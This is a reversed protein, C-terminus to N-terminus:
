DSWRFEKNDAPSKATRATKPKRAHPAGAEVPLSLVPTQSSRIVREATAGLMVRELIGKSQLNLVLLDANADKAFSVISSHPVGAVVLVETQIDSAHTSTTTKLRELAQDRIINFDFPLMGPIDVGWQGAELPDVVHIVTLRAGFARALDATYRLGAEARSTLDSAYVM